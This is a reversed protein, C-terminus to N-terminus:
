AQGTGPWTAAPATKTSRDTLAFVLSAVVTAILVGVLVGYGLARM